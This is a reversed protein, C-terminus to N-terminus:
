WGDFMACITPVIPFFFVQRPEQGNGQVRQLPSSESPTKSTMFTPSVSYAQTGYVRPELLESLICSADLVKCWADRLTEKQPAQISITGWLSPTLIAGLPLCPSYSKLHWLARKFMKKADSNPSFHTPTAISGSVAIIKSKVHDDDDM